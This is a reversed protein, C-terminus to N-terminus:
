TSSVETVVVEAVRCPGYCVFKLGAEWPIIVTFGKYEMGVMDVQEDNSDHIYVAKGEGSKLHMDVLLFATDPGPVYRALDNFDQWRPNSCKHGTEEECKKVLKHDSSTKTRIKRM